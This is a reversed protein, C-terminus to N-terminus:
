TIAFTLTKAVFLCVCECVPCSRCAWLNWELPMFLLKYNRFYFILQQMIRHFKVPGGVNSNPRTSNADPPRPPGGTEFTLTSGQFTIKPKVKSRIVWIYLM